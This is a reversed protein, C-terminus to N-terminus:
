ERLLGDCVSRTDAVAPYDLYGYLRSRRGLLKALLDLTRASVPGTGGETLAQLLEGREDGTLDELWFEQEARLGLVSGLPSSKAEAAAAGEPLAMAAVLGSVLRLLERRDLYMGM